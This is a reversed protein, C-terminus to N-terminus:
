SQFRAFVMELFPNEKLKAVIEQPTNPNRAVALQIKFNKNKSLRSLTKASTNSHEAVDLQLVQIKSLKDLIDPPTFNNEVLLLHHKVSDSNMLFNYFPLPMKLQKCADYNALLLKQCINPNELFICESEIISNKLVARPLISFVRSCGM